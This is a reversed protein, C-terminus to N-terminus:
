GEAVKSVAAAKRRKWAARLKARTAASVKYGRPRGGGLRVRTARESTERELAALMKQGQSIVVQLEAVLDQRQKNWAAFRAAVDRFSVGLTGTERSTRGRRHTVNGRTM